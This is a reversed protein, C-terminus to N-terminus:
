LIYLTLIYLPLIYLPLIYINLLYLSYKLYKYTHSSIISQLLTRSPIDLHFVPPIRLNFRCGLHFGVLEVLACGMRSPLHPKWLGQKINFDSNIFLLHFFIVKLLKVM